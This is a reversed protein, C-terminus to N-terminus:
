EGKGFFFAEEREVIGQPDIGEVDWGAMVIEGMLLNVNPIKDRRRRHSIQLPHHPLVARIGHSIHKSLLPNPLCFSLRGHSM